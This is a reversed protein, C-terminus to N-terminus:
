AAKGELSTQCRVCRATWPVAALRRAGIKAGCDTCTGYAGAQLRALARRAAEGTQWRINEDIHAVYRDHLESAQDEWDALPLPEEITSTRSRCDEVIQSLTQRYQNNSKM